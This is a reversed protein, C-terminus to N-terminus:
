VCAGVHGGGGIPFKGLICLFMVFTIEMGGHGLSQFPVPKSCNGSKPRGHPNSGTRVITTGRQEVNNWPNWPRERGKRTESLLFYSRLLLDSKSNQFCKVNGPSIQRLSLSLYLSLALSINGLIKKKRRQRPFFLLPQFAEPNLMVLFQIPVLFLKWCFKQRFAKFEHIYGAALHVRFQLSVPLLATELFIM